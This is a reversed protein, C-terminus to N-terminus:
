RKLTNNLRQKFEAPPLSSGCKGDETPNFPLRRKLKQADRSVLFYYDDLREFLLVREGDVDYGSVYHASPYVKDRKIPYLAMPTPEDHFVVLGWERTKLLRLASTSSILQHGTRWVHPRVVHKLM